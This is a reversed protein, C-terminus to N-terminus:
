MSPFSGWWVNCLLFLVGGFMVYLFLVGGFMVYLFLVGGFM